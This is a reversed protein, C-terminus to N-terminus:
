ATHNSLTDQERFPKGMVATPRREGFQSVRLVVEKLANTINLMIKLFYLYLQFPQLCVKHRLEMLNSEKHSRDSGVAKIFPSQQSSHPSPFTQGQPSDPTRGSDILSPYGHSSSESYPLSSSFSSFFLLPVYPPCLFPILLIIVLAYFKVLAILANILSPQTKHINQLM